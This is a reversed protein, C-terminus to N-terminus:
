RMFIIGSIGSIGSIGQCGCKHTCVGIHHTWILSCIRMFEAESEYESENESETESEDEAEEDYQEQLAIM